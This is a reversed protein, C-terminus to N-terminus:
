LGGELGPCAPGRRQGQIGAEAPGGGRQTNQGWLKQNLGKRVGKWRTREEEDRLAPSLGWLGQSPRPGRQVGGM